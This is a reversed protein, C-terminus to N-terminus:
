REGRSVDRQRRGQQSVTAVQRGAQSLMATQRGTQTVGTRVADPATTGEFAQDFTFPFPAGPM